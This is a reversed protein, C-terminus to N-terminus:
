KPVRMTLQVGDFKPSYPEPHAEILGGLSEIVQKIHYLGLGSGDTTTVGKEFVRQLPEISTPWGVGDDAVTVLLQPSTGRTVELFFGVHAARAKAANGVLNDIVIGVEIPRFQRLFPKSDGHVEVELGRPVWLTSVTTLYDRFYIALDDEM